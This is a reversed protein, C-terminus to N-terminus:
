YDTPTESAKKIRNYDAFSLKRKKIKKKKKISQLFQIYIGIWNTESEKLFLNKMLINSESLQIKWLFSTM